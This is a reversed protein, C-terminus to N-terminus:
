HMIKFLLEKLIDGDSMSVNNVGKSQADAYRIDSIINMTKIGSFRRMGQMYNKAQWEFRLGLMEAIGKETKSPAYYALMLNSFYNFLVTLTVQIPNNRPNDNFYKIIQNIKYVDGSIVASQLEFNNYQKSIGINQEVVDPTIFQNKGACVILLKDLESALRTLDPGIFDGLMASAKGDIRTGRQKVYDSIFTSLDRERVAVSDFIVGHKRILNVVKRRRDLVGHKHCFVLITSPAPNQLYYELNDIDKINQAEKVIIVQYKSMMPYRKAATVISAMSAEMGYFITLNFEKEEETLINKEFFDSLEDIYYGEEGMLYYIPSYKKIRLQSLIDFYSIHEKAMIVM